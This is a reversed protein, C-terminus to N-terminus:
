SGPLKLHGTKVRDVGRNARWDEFSVVGDDDVSSIRFRSGQKRSGDASVKLSLGDVRTDKRYRLFLGVSISSLKQLSDELVASIITHGKARTNLVDMVDAAKFWCSGFVDRLAHMLVTTAELRPDAERVAMLTTVPDAYEDLGLAAVSQGVIEDWAEFSGVRGRIRGGVGGRGLAWTVVTLAAVVMEDRQEVVERLPDFDFSRMAPVECDPDIRVVLVRRTMDGVIAMNNGSFLMLLGTDIEVQRSEGLVRGSYLPSTLVAALAASDLLGVQNDFLAARPKERLVALLVKAVEEEQKAPLPAYLKGGGALAMLCQGLLTKGSGAAPADLAFAPATALSPRVVATLLAALFAGRSGPGDFPFARFPKMLVDVASVAEDRSVVVGDDFRGAFRGGTQVLLMSEKDWGDESLLVGDRRVVPVDVVGRLERFGVEGVVAAVQRVLGVPPDVEVMRVSNGAKEQRACMIREGLEVALRPDSMMVMKGEVVRTVAGARRYLGDSAALWRAALWTAETLEGEGVPVLCRGDANVMIEEDGGVGVGGSDLDPTGMAPVDWDMDPMDEGGVGGDFEMDPAEVGAQSRVSPGAGLRTGLPVFGASLGLKKLGAGIGGIKEAVSLDAPRYLTATATDWIQVRGDAPNVGVLGRTLNRAASECFGLSVRLGGIGAIVELEELNLVEGRNTEFKHTPLLTLSRTETVKGHKASVEYDWGLKDLVKSVTDVLAFVDKRRLTPLEARPIDVLGIGDAWRYEVAIEGDGLYSHVGYVGIQRAGGTGSGTFVELRQLAAGAPDKERAGPAYYAKSWLKDIKGTELRGFLCIKAGKGARLPLANLREFLEADEDEVAAWIADLAGEDDIDFDLAVLDGDMRLGTALLGRRDEWDAITDYDVELTPWRKLRCVKSENALPVYGNDLLARRVRTQEEVRSRATVGDTM